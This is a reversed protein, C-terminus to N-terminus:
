SAGEREEEGKKEWRDNEGDRGKQFLTSFTGSVDNEEGGLLPLICSSASM